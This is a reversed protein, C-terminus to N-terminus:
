LLLSMCDLAATYEEHEAQIRIGVVEHAQKKEGSSLAPM